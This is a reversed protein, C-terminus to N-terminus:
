HDVADFAKSLNIFASRTYKNYEFSEPIQDVLHVIAYDTLYGTQFGFQKSYLIKNEILYQYLRNYMM